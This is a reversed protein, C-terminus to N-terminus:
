GNGGATVGRVVIPGGPTAARPRLWPRPDRQPRSVIVLVAISLWSRGASDRTVDGTPVASARVPTVGSCTVDDAREADDAARQGEVRAALEEPARDDDREEHKKSMNSPATARTVPLVLRKPRRGRSWWPGPRGVRRDEGPQDQAERPPGSRCAAQDAEREEAQDGAREHGVCPARRPCPSLAVTPMASRPSRSIM